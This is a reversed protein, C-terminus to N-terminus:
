AQRKYVDLHTYSVPGLDLAEEVVREGAIVCALLLTVREVEVIQLRAREIQQAGIGSTYLLCISGHGACPLAM